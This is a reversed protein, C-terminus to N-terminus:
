CNIKYNDCETKHYQYGYWANYGQERWVKYACNTNKQCNFLSSCSTGCENYKSMPDGSCWYYSNIEFLGYDTSGDTNKNTADCNFSSEYKSICVMTPITSSSFGANKLYTAVQCESEQSLTNYNVLRNKYETVYIHNYISDYLDYNYNCDTQSMVLPKNFTNTFGFSKLSLQVQEDYKTYYESINRALVFLSIRKDDSVIAYQYLDNIVPGLEIVWYPAARSVGDLTVTLEGGSNDHQYFAFGRIQNVTGDSDIQSNLVTINTRVYVYDAVACTGDGQFTMDFKNKYVQYWRGMYKEVDLFEVPSYESIASGMFLIVCTLLFINM